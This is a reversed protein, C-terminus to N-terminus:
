YGERSRPRHACPLLQVGVPGAPPHCEDSPARRRRAPTRRSVAGLGVRVAAACRESSQRRAGRAASQAAEFQRKGVKAAALTYQYSPIPRAEPEGSQDAGTGCGGVPGDELLRPRVRAAHGPRRAPTEEAAGLVLAFTGARKATRRHGGGAAAGSRCRAPRALGRRVRGPGQRHRRDRSVRQGSQLLLEYSPPAGGKAHELVDIGEPVAGGKILVLAFTISWRQPVDALQKWDAAFLTTAQHNGLKLSDTVLVILGDPSTKIQDLVPQLLTWSQSYRGKTTEDRALALRALANPPDLELVKRFM